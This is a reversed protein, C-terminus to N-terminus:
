PLQRGTRRGVASRAARDGGADPEYIRLQRLLVPPGEQDAREVSFGPNRRAFFPDPALPNRKLGPYAAMNHDRFFFYGSGHFQNGGSRTVVNIAGVSTIGTSLDFNAASLQFEKVVEQSFNMQSGGEIPNRTNGGDVTIATKGSDGGLISVSFLSNYQSTTGPSITVGPQISALQLFSRGNLPLDEIQEQTIVGEIAHHEYEMQATAAEVTVVDRTAGVQLRIDVTTTGGTEVTAERMMTTFGPMVVKVSYTAAPLSPVNYTGDPGTLLARSAGTEKNIVNVPANVVVAGTADTVVGAITGTPAQAFSFELALVVFAFLLARLQRGTM